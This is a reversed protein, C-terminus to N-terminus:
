RFRGRQLDDSLRVPEPDGSLRHRYVQTNELVRQVYNRTESFPIFEVWDVPDIEGARPDGYDEVWQKPRSAGANYAATTMIYSGNFQNLLTDLHAGGLTMNYGPDDTLWSTRFPLGQKRAEASATRPIFQMLGRANAHSIANPNMESEQRSLALMLSREVRPQRILDYDVLPYAADAAVVGKALGAKAGRVGIDAYHYEQGLEALLDFDQPKILQDDLHYAFKRFSADWGNEAFLRMARVLTRSNFNARDADTVVYGGPLDIEILLAKEAALQGYYTFNHKAADTYAARAGDMDNMAEYSRGIWYDARSLSIPTGVGSKLTQFHKLARTADGRHRLAIWGASWEAEAFDGGASMGHPAALQYAVQWDGAKLASRMALNREDWLRSRGASPIDNGDIQVLLETVSNTLRSKRRWVARDFVLGPHDQLSAPVADIAGDVGRSRRILRIRAETLAQWDKTLYPKLRSAATAQYTWLLFDARQRHDEQSLKSRYRSLTRNSLENTLTRGHWAKRVESLAKDAQGVSEYAQALVLHGAGSSPGGHRNFWDIRQSANLASFELKVEAQSRIEDIEPWSSLRTLATDIEDFSIRWDRRARYWLLIDRATSDRLQQEAASVKSWNEDEVANLADRLIGAERTSIVDSAAILDPKVSPPSAVQAAAAFGTGSLGLIVMLCLGSLAQHM